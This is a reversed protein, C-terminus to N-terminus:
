AHSLGETISDLYTTIAREAFPQLRPSATLAAHARGVNPPTDLLLEVLDKARFDGPFLLSVLHVVAERGSPFDFAAHGTRSRVPALGGGPAGGPSGAGQSLRGRALVEM